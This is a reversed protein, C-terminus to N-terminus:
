CRRMTAPAARSRSATSPAPLPFPSATTRPPRRARPGAAHLAQEPRRHPRHGRRDGGRHGRKFAQHAQHDQFRHARDAARNRGGDHLRSRERRRDIKRDRRGRDAADGESRRRAQLRARQRNPQQYRAGDSRDGRGHSSRGYVRKLHAVPVKGPRFGDIRVRGKIEDLRVNVKADLEAAPVVVKFERKLGESLTETVQM